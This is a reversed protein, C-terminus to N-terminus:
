NGGSSHPGAAWELLQTEHQRIAREASWAAFTWNRLDGREKAKGEWLALIKGAVIARQTEELKPLERILTPLADEGLSLLYAGDFPARHARAANVGVIFASPNLAHLAILMVFWLAIAGRLFRSRRRRLVTAAFWVFVSALWLMLATTYVRLETLGYVETYLLMRKLASLMVIGLLCLQMGALSRYIREAGREGSREIFWHAALLLPLALAVVAVLEFFGRRAYEAYTLGETMEVLPAGGFLYRFQVIVFTLFLLNLLGLPIGIEIAGLSLKPVARSALQLADNVLDARKAGDPLFACLFGGVVWALFLTFFVHAFIEDISPYGFLGNLLSAFIEDASALLAGFVLLLPIALMVGITVSVLRRTRTSRLLRKWEIDYFLLAVAGLASYLGATLIAGIYDIFGAVRVDRGRGYWVLLTLAFLISCVDLLKLTPSARWAIGIVGFLALAFLLGTQKLDTRRSWRLLLFVGGILAGLWLFLNLGLRGSRLLADGFLGMLLAVELVRLATSQRSM